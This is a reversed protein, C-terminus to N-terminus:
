YDFNLTLGIQNNDYEYLAVDSQRAAFAYTLKSQLRQTLKWVIALDTTHREFRDIGIYNLKAMAYEYRAIGSFYNSFEHRLETFVSTNIFGGADVIASDQTQRSSGILVRTFSQPYWEMELEYSLGSLDAFRDSEYIRRQHGLRFTGTTKGTIVWEVGGRLTEVHNSQDARAASAEHDFSQYRAEIFSRTKPALRYFFLGKAQWYDNNRFSQLTDEFELQGVQLDLVAQGLSKPTGYSIKMTANKDIFQIFENRAIALSNTEGPLEVKDSYRARFSSSFRSTHDFVAESSFNHLSFNLNNNNRYAQFQGDYHLIFTSVGLGGVFDIYPLASFYVDSQEGGDPQHQINDDYITEAAVGFETKPLPKALITPSISFSIGIFLFALINAKPVGLRAPWLLVPM